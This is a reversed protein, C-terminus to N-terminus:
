LATRRSRFHFFLQQLMRFASSAVMAGLSLAGAIGLTRLLAATFLTTVGQVCFRMADYIGGGPVLPLLAIILYTTVPCRRIRAMCEAYLTITLGAAFYRLFVNGTCPTALLYTLWGLAGGFSCILIGPGHVNFIFCFGLCSFFAYVCPMFLNTLLEM